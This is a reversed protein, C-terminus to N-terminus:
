GHVGDTSRSRRRNLLVRRWQKGASRMLGNRITCSRIGCSSVVFEKFTPHTCIRVRHNHPPAQLLKAIPIFPQVDGRSGCIHIAINLRPAGINSANGCVFEDVLVTSGRRPKACQAPRCAAAENQIRDFWYRLDTTNRHFQIAVQGFTNVRGTSPAKKDHDKGRKQKSNFYLPM